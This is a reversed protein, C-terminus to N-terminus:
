DEENVLKLGPPAQVGVCYASVSYNSLPPHGRMPFDMLCRLYVSFVLEYVVSSVGAPLASLGISFTRM